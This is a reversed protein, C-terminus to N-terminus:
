VVHRWTRRLRVDRITDQNVSFQEALARDTDGSRVAVRIYRVDEETLKARGNLEGTRGRPRFFPLLDDIVQPSTGLVRLADTSVPAENEPSM